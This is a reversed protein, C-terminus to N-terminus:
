RADVVGEATWPNWPLQSKCDSCVFFYYFIRDVFQMFIWSDWQRCVFGFLIQSSLWVRIRSDDTIVKNSDM